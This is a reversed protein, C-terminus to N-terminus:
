FQLIALLFHVDECGDDDSEFASSHGDPYTCCQCISPKPLHSIVKSLNEM